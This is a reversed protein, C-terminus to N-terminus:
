ILFNLFDAFDLTPKGDTFDSDKKPALSVRNYSNIRKQWWATHNQTTLRKTILCSYMGFLAKCTNQNMRSKIIEERRAKDYGLNDMMERFVAIDIILPTLGCSKLSGLLEDDIKHTFTFRIMNVFIELSKEKSLILTSDNCITYLLKMYGLYGKGVDSEPYIYINTSGGPYPSLTINTDLKAAKVPPPDKVINSTAGKILNLLEKSSSHIGGGQNKVNAM